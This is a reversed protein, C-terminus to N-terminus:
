FDYSNLSIIVCLTLVQRILRYINSATIFIRKGNKLLEM